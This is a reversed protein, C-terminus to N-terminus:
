ELQKSTLKSVKYLINIEHNFTVVKIELLFILWNSHIFLPYAMACWSWFLLPKHWCFYHKNEPLKFAIYNTTYARPWNKSVPLCVFVHDREIKKFNELPCINRYKAQKFSSISNNSSYKYHQPLNKMNKYWHKHLYMRKSAM